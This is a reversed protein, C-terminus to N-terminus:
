SLRTHRGVLGCACARLVWRLFRRATASQYSSGGGGRAERGAEARRMTM